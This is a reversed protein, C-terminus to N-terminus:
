GFAQPGMLNPSPSQDEGSDYHGGRHPHYGRSAGERVDGRAHRCADLSDRMDRYLGLREHM